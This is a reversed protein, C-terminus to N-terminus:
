SNDSSIVKIKNLVMAVYIEILTDLEHKAVGYVEQAYLKLNKRIVAFKGPYLTSVYYIDESDMFPYIMGWWGYTRDREEEMPVIKTQDTIHKAVKVIYDDEKSM